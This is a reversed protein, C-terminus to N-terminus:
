DVLMCLALRCEDINLHRLVGKHWKQQGSEANRAM